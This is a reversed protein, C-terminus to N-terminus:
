RPRSPCAVVVPGEHLLIEMGMEVLREGAEAPADELVFRATPALVRVAEDLLASSQEGRMALGGLSRDRFPLGSGLRVWNSEDGARDGPEQLSAVVRADPLLESLAAAVEPPQGILLVTANAQGVGLLAGIRYAAETVDGTPEPQSDGADETEAAELRLDTVGERIRFSDRCNACGLRGDWVRRERMEDALVILGFQPGCRPCTLVDTLLIHM